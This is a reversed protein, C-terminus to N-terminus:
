IHDDMLKMFEEIVPDIFEPENIHANLEVYPISSNLNDKIADFFIQNGEPEWHPMGEQDPQSVGKLPVFVRM